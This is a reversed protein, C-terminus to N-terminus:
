ILTKHEVQCQRRDKKKHKRKEEIKVLKKEM